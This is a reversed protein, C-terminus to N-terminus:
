YAFQFGLRVSLGRMLESNSIKVSDFTSAIDLNIYRALTIGASLYTLETGALNKSLGLRASPLWWSSSSYGGILNLWQYEDGMPDEIANVELDMGLNWNRQQTYLSGELRLQREMTFQEHHDLQSLIETSQYRREDLEPFKYTSETLNLLTAGLQYHSTAWVLGLDIDMGNKYVYPANKIDDFLAESDSIDGIRADANTLGVRYFSPKVGWYLDGSQTSKAKRSYSFVWKSIKAAKILLLSDNNFKLRSKGTAPDYFLSVGGTLDLTRAPDLPSIGTLTQLQAKATGKNFNFAEVIGLAKSTALTNVGMMLTGQFFDESLVFPLDVALEAKAYGESGILALLSAAITIENEVRKLREELQPYKKFLEDLNIGNDGSGGNGSGGGSGGGNAPEGPEFSDALENIKNFLQDVNGYELGVSLQVMGGSILHPDQREIELAAAAPNGQNSLARQSQSLFANLPQSEANVSSCFCLCLLGVPVIRKRLERLRQM